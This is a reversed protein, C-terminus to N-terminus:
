GHCGAASPRHGSRVRPQSVPRRRALLVGTLCCAFGVLVPGPRTRRTATANPTTTTQAPARKALEAGCNPADVVDFGVTAVAGNAVSEPTVSAVVGGGHGNGASVLGYM